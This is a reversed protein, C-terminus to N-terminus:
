AFMITLKQLYLKGYYIINSNATTFLTPVAPSSDFMKHLACQKYYSTIVNATTHSIAAPLNFHADIDSWLESHATSLVCSLDTSVAQSQQTIRQKGM